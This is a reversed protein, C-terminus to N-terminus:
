FWFSFFLQYVGSELEYLPEQGVLAGSTLDRFNDYNILLQDYIVTVSGKEIFSWDKFLEYSAQLRM